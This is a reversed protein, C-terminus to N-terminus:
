SSADGGQQPVTIRSFLMPAISGGPTNVEQWGVAAEMRSLDHPVPSALQVELQLLASEGSPLPYLADFRNLTKWAREPGLWTSMKVLDLYDRISSCKLVLVATLELLAAM